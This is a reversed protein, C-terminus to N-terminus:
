DYRQAYVGDYSGDQLYSEWTVVFGGTSLAAVAANWQNSTTYTNVRFEVGQAVGSGDYRQAYVGYYSGDQADSRWTVVFGGDTLAAIAPVYQFSTTYTNVRFEGGQAVGSADYRQGYVGYGSGDQDSQWTVVFGGNTLGAIASNYQDNTTYTNVQFEAGQAVGSADYREGYIGYGSGDQGDGAWTVAFGGNILGAIAPYMQDNTTYTNVRFEGLPTTRRESAHHDSLEQQLTDKEANYLKPM